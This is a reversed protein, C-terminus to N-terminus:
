LCDCFVHDLTGVADGCRPCSADLDVYRRSLVERTPLCNTALCQVLNKFKPPVGINWLHRWLPRRAQNSFVEPQMFTLGQYASKIYFLGKRDMKWCWRDPFFTSSLTISVICRIEEETFLDQLKTVDWERKGEVFLESVTM